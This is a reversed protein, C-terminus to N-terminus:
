FCTRQRRQITEIDRVPVNYLRGARYAEDLLQVPHVVNMELGRERIGMAIQMMCGPNGTAIVTAGSAIINDM